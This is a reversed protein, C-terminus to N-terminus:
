EAGHIGIPFCRRLHGVGEEGTRLATPVASTAGSGPCVRGLKLEIQMAQKEEPPARRGTRNWATRAVWKPSTPCLAVKGLEEM